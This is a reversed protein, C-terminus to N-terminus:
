AHTILQAIESSTPNVTMPCAAGPVVEVDYLEAVSGDIRFWEACRGSNLDIVQMGTWPESDTEKLRRDLDLGEFRKYRPRSLGVFAFNGAFALGRTFGPLFTHPVFRGRGTEVGEVTGLEGTGSNLVWLKGNHLRPSHPMSLGECVVVNKKVDIVVGGDSRRDRWGDITNSRSVATVYAPENGNMALGNLHCRDEQVLDTIFSPRWIERFSHKPDVTALCNYRTNVFIPNGAGDLGVDHADLSGTVHVTRPVYCRDFLQNVRQDPKLVNEMRLIQYGCALTLSGDAEHKVGMPKPMGCQHLHLGGKPNRGLMYLLGSQYSTLAVSINLRALLAVLGGSQSYTVESPKSEDAIVPAGQATNAQGANAQASDAKPAAERETVDSTM